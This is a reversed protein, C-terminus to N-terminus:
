ITLVLFSFFFTARIKWFKRLKWVSTFASIVFYFVWVCRKMDWNREAELVSSFAFSLFLLSHCLAVSSPGAPAPSADTAAAIM